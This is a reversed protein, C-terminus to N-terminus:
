CCEGNDYIVRSQYTYCKTIEVDECFLHTFQVTDHVLYRFSHIKIKTWPVTFGLPKGEEVDLDTVKIHGVSGGFLSQAAVKDIVGNMSTDHILMKFILFVEGM